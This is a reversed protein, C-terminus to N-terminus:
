LKKQIREYVETTFGPKDHFYKQMFNKTLLFTTSGHISYLYLFMAKDAEEVQWKSNSNGYM